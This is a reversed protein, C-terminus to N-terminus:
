ADEGALAAPRLADQTVNVGTYDELWVEREACRAVVKNWFQLVCASPHATRMQRIEASLNRVFRLSPFADSRLLSSIQESLLFCLTAADTDADFSDTYCRM